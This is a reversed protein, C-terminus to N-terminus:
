LTELAAIIQANIAGADFKREAALRSQRGMELRLEPQVIFRTMAAALAEANRPPVVIGNLGDDVLDRCGPVDTTIVPLGLAMAEQISRSAGERYSPLVFATAEVLYQRVDAVHGILEVPSNSQLEEVEAETLGGPANDRGGILLFRAEPHASHVLRAADAFERIGKQWLLRAVLVFTPVLPTASSPSFHRLDLGIGPLRVVKGAPARGGPMLMARDDDNLFIVRHSLRVGLRMGQLLTQKIVRYRTSRPGTHSFYFGMGEVSSVRRRVGALTAALTGIVVSQVFYSLVADPRLRRITRALRVIDGAASAPSLSSRSVVVDVPEAGRAAVAKRSADDFDPALAFVKV